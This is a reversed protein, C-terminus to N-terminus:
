EFNFTDYRSIKVNDDWWNKSLGAKEKLHNLFDKKDSLQEWVTPLFTARQSKWELILGDVNPQIKELLDEESSFHIEEAQGIVSIDLDLDDYEYEELPPFRPDQFAAAYAHAAIDNILPQHPELAGICGRLSGHKHLTVFSAAQQQLDASYDKMNIQLSQGDILGHKISQRAVYLCTDQDDRSLKISPMPVM